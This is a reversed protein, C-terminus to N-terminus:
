VGNANREECPPLYLPYGIYPDITHIVNGQILTNLGEELRNKENYNVRINHIYIHKGELGSKYKHATSSYATYISSYNDMKFENIVVKFEKDFEKAIKEQIENHCNITINIGSEEVKRYTRILRMVDTPIAVEIINKYHNKYLDLLIDDASELYEDKLLWKIPNIDTSGVYLNKLISLSPDKMYDKFYGNNVTQTKLIYVICGIPICVISEFDFINDTHHKIM